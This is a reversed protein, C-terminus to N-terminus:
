GRSPRPKAAEAREAAVDDAVNGPRNERPTVDITKGEITKPEALPPSLNIGYGAPQGGNQQVNVVVGPAAKPGRLCQIANVRDRDRASPNDRIQAAIAINKPEHCQRVTEVAAAFAKQFSPDQQLARARKLRLGCARTAKELPLPTNPEILGVIKDDIETEVGIVMCDILRQAKWDTVGGPSYQQGRTTKIPLRGDETLQPLDSM